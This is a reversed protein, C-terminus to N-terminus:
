PLGSVARVVERCDRGAARLDYIYQAAAIAGYGEQPVTPEADCERLSQPVHYAVVQGSACGTLVLMLLM